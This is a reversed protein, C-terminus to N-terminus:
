RSKDHNQQLTECLKTFSGSKPSITYQNTWYKGNFCPLQSTELRIANLTQYFAAKSAGYHAANAQTVFAAQSGIGVIIPYKNFFPRIVELM